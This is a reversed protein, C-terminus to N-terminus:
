QQKNFVLKRSISYRELKARTSVIGVAQLARGRTTKLAPVKKNM